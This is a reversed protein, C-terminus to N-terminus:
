AIKEVHHWEGDIQNRLNQALEILKLLAQDAKRRTTEDRQQYHRRVNRSANIQGIQLNEIWSILKVPNAPLDPPAAKFFGFRWNFYDLIRYDGTTEILKEVKGIALDCGAPTALSARYLLNKSCQCATALADIDGHLAITEAIANERTMEREKLSGYLSPNHTPATLMALLMLLVILFFRM